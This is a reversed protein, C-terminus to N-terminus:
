HTPINKIDAQSLQQAQAKRDRELPRMAPFLIVEKINNNNSLFMVLRDIGMGWGATPPLGHELAECFGEDIPQAEEDGAARDKAQDTFLTRQVFPDNLETYANCLEKGCIFLEFRETKGPKSRHYKALPSMLQPHDTIFSPNTLEPEIYEGVLKDLMRATTLPPTCEIENDELLTKLFDNCEQSELPQPFTIGLKGELTEIMPIRRYPPTFDIEYFKEPNSKGLPYFTIKYTGFFHHVMSSLLQETMEFLDHYDAYAWYAEIATFEPNHTLDIGENRFNKGIEYVKEIGGVILQKLYLETAIRLFLNVGLENHYTIFPKATAGGALMSMTPTEVELFGREDFFRRIFQIM